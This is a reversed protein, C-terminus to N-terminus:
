LHSGSFLLDSFLTVSPPIEIGSITSNAFCELELAECSPSLKVSTVPHRVMYAFYPPIRQLEEEPHIDLSWLFETVDGMVLPLTITASDTLDEALAKYFADWGFEEYTRYHKAILKKVRENATDKISKYAM